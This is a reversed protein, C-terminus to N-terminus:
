NEDTPDPEVDLLGLAYMAAWHRPALDDREIAECLEAEGFMDYALLHEAM